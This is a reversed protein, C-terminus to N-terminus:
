AIPAPSIRRAFSFTLEGSRRARNRHACGRSGPCYGRPVSEFTLGVANLTIVPRRACSSRSSSAVKSARNRLTRSSPFADYHLPHGPASPRRSACPRQRRRFSVAASTFVVVALALLVSRQRHDALRGSAFGSWRDLRAAELHGHIQGGRRRAEGIAGGVRKVSSSRARRRGRVPGSASELASPQHAEAWRRRARSSSGTCTSRPAAPGLWAAEPDAGVFLFLNRIEARQETGSQRHRWSVAALAGDDDGHLAAVETFTMLEINTTAGIRDILYRSMSAALSEGRILMFVRDAYQSLFVAAQGASNGGGVLAVEAQACM